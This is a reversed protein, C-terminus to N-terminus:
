PPSTWGAAAVKAGPDKGEPSDRFSIECDGQKPCVDGLEGGAFM